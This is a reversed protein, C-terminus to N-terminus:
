QTVLSLNKSLLGPLINSGREGSVNFVNYESEKISAGMDIFKAM